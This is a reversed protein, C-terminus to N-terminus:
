PRLITIKVGDIWSPTNGTQARLTEAIKQRFGEPFEIEGKFRWEEESHHEAGLEQLAAFLLTLQREDIDDPCLIRLAM